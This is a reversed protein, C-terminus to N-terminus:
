TGPKKTPETTAAPSPSGKPNSEFAGKYTIKTYDFGIAINGIRALESDVYNVFDNPEKHENKLNGRTVPYSAIENQLTEYELFLAKNDSINKEQQFVPPWLGYFAVLATMVVFLTKVYENAPGWGRTAIFFMAIAVFAGAFLMVCISTYYAEFFFAMVRGHHSILGKVKQAQVGLRDTQEKTLPVPTAVPTPTPTPTPKTNTNGTTGPTPTPTPTGNENNTTSPSGTPTASPSPSPSPTANSGLGLMGLSGPNEVISGCDPSTEKDYQCLWLKSEHRAFLGSLYGGIVTATVLTLILIVHKAVRSLAQWSAILGNLTPM